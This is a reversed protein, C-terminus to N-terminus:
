ATATEEERATILAPRHVAYGQAYDLGLRQVETRIADSEVWEAITPIGIAKGVSNIADVMAKDIPDTLIDRVFAGDLKLFDVPLTKLYGFSSLGSGFDDLAFLCGLERMQEMFRLAQGVHAIAATETIEFCFTGPQIGAAKLTRHAFARYGEDGISSGSVNVAVIQTLSARLRGAQIHACTTELVWRDLKGSMLNYREAAAIVPGIPVPRGEPDFMRLLVEQYQRVKLGPRLAEASQVALAMRGDAMALSIREVWGMDDRRRSMEGDDASYVHVRNRGADKASYCALDAASMLAAVSESGEHVAVVGISVGIEFSRQNWVFRFESVVQLLKDAIAATRQPPCHYVLVGFEDGGLRSLTDSGRLATRLLEGLQRLLEDGAQHGCTDNVIKFQDLDLFMLGHTSRDKRTAELLDALRREFQPRNMLGTLDDHSALYALDRTLGQSRRADAYVLMGISALGALTLGLVALMINRRQDKALAKVPALPVQVELAGLLQYRVWQRGEPQGAQRRAMRTTDSTELANHCNVCSAANGADARLYRLTPEGNVAEVRWAPQWAIAATPATQDQAELQAWAWRQFPDKLEQGEGLHWKSLLSFRYLGDSDASARQGTLKLFQAPLPVNGPEAAYSESAVGRKDALLKGAVHEAYVSRSVTAQRAVVEALTVAKYEILSNQGKDVVLWTVGSVALMLLLAAVLLHSRLRSSLNGAHVDDVRRRRTSSKNLPVDARANIDPLRPAM